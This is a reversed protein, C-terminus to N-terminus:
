VRDLAEVGFRRLLALTKMLPLGVVATDDATAPDAEIREFLAIGLSELRYAGACDLPQDHAVYRELQARSLARMTLVHIDVDIETREQDASHVAVATILRHSRGSLRELQAVAREATGPKHLVEGGLDLIQDSGIVLAGPAGVAEAKMRALVRAQELPALHRSTTEDVGSSVAEYPVGLRDLLARRYRSESALILRTAPM